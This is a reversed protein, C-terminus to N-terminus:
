FTTSLIITQLVLGFDRLNGFFCCDAGGNM